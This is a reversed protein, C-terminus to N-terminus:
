SDLARRFREDLIAQQQPEAGPMCLWDLEMDKLQEANNLTQQGLGSKNMQDLQFQMRETKDEAPTEVGKAIELKICM